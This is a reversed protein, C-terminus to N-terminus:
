HIISSAKLVMFEESARIFAFLKDGSSFRTPKITEKDLHTHSCLRCLTMQVNINEIQQPALPEM